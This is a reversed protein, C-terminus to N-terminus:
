INKRLQFIWIKELFGQYDSIVKGRTEDLRKETPSLLDHVEIIVYSDNDLKIQKVNGKKWIVEDIFKNEGKIFNNNEVQLSLPSETNCLKLLEDVSYNTARNSMTWGLKKNQNNINKM